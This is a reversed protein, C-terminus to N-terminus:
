LSNVTTNPPRESERLRFILLRSLFNDGSGTDEIEEQVQRCYFLNLCGFTEVILFELYM